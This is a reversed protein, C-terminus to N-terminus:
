LPHVQSSDSTYGLRALGLGEEITLLMSYHNSPTADTPSRAMSPTRFQEANRSCICDFKHKLSYTFSASHARVLSGCVAYRHNRSSRIGTGARRRSDPVIQTSATGAASDPRTNTRARPDSGM